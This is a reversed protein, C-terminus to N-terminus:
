EYALCLWDLEQSLRDCKKGYLTLMSVGACSLLSLFVRM